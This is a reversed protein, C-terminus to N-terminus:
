SSTWGEFACHSVDVLLMDYQKDNLGGSKGKKLKDYIKAKRELAARASELTPKSIAELEIDRSARANVGKNQRYWVTPKQFILKHIIITEMNLYNLVKGPRKVGGVITTSQGAAKSRTFEEEQKALEAKLDFFSSAGIGKAKAKSAHSM